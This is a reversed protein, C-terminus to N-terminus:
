RNVDLGFVGERCTGGSGTMRANRYDGEILLNGSSISVFGTRQDISGSWTAGDSFFSITEGRVEVNFNYALSCGKSTWRRFGSYSNDPVLQSSTSSVSPRYTPLAPTTFPSSTYSPSTPRGPWSAWIVTSVIVLLSGTIIWKKRASSAPAPPPSRPDLPDEVPASVDEHPPRPPSSAIEPPSARDTIETKNGLALALVNVTWVALAPALGQQELRHVQLKLEIGNDAAGKLAIAINETLALHLARIEARNRPFADMLFARLRDPQELMESGQRDLLIRIYSSFAIKRQLAAIENGIGGTATAAATGSGAKPTQTIPGKDAM